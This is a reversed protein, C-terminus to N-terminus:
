DEMQTDVSMRYFQSVPIYEIAKEKIICIITGNQEFKANIVDEFKIRKGNNMYLVLKKIM